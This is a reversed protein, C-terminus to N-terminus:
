LIGNNTVVNQLMWQMNWLQDPHLIVNDHELGGWNPKPYGGMDFIYSEGDKIVEGMMPKMPEMITLTTSMRNM